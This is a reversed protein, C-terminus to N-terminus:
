LKISAVQPTFKCKRRTNEIVALWVPCLHVSYVCHFACFTIHIYSYLSSGEEGAQNSGLHPNNEAMEASRPVLAILIRSSELEVNM